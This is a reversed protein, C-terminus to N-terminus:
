KVLMFRNLYCVEQFSEPLELLDLHQTFPDGDVLSLPLDSRLEVHIRFRFHTRTAPIPLTPQQNAEARSERCPGSKPRCSAATLSRSGCACIAATLGV